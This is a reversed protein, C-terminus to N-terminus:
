WIWFRVPGYSCTEVPLPSEKGV